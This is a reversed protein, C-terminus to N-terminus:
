SGHDQGIGLRDRPCAATDTDNM